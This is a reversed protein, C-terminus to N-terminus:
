ILRIKQGNVMDRWRSFDFVLRDEATLSIITSFAPPQRDGM